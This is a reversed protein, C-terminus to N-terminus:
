KRGGYSSTMSQIWDLYSPARYPKGAQSHKIRTIFGTPAESYGMKVIYDGGDVEVIEASYGNLRPNSPTNVQVVDGPKFLEM